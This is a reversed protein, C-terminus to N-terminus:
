RAAAGTAGPAGAAAHGGARGASAISAVGLLLAPACLFAWAAWHDVLVAGVLAAAVALVGGARPSRWLAALVALVPALFLVAYPAAAAGETAASAVAFATWAAAWAIGGLLVARRLPDRRPM